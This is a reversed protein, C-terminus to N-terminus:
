DPNCTFDSSAKQDWKSLDKIVTPIVGWSVYFNIIESELYYTLLFIAEFGHHLDGVLIRHLLFYAGRKNDSSHVRDYASRLWRVRGQETLRLCRQAIFEIHPNASMFEISCDSINAESLTLETLSPCGKVINLVIEDTIVPCDYCSLSRLCRGSELISNIVTETIGMISLTKIQPNDRILIEIGKTTKWTCKLSYLAVLSPCYGIESLYNTDIDYFNMDLFIIDSLIMQSRKLIIKSYNIHKNITLYRCIIGKTIVWSLHHDDEIDEYLFGKFIEM